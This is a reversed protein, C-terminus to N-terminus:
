VYGRVLESFKTQVNLSEVDQGEEEEQQQQQQQKYQQQQYM